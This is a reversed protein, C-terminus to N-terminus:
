RAVDSDIRDNNRSRRRNPPSPSCEDPQAQWAALSRANSTGSRGKATGQAATIESCEFTPGVTGNNDSCAQILTGVVLLLGFVVLTWPRVAWPHRRAHDPSRKVDM